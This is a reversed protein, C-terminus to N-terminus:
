FSPKQMVLFNVLAKRKLPFINNKLWMRSFISNNLNNLNIGQLLLVRTENPSFFFFPIHNLLFKDQKQDFFDKCHSTNQSHLFSTPSCVVCLEWTPLYQWSSGVRYFACMKQIHWLGLYQFIKAIGQASKKKDTSPAKISYMVLNSHPRMSMFLESTGFSPCM